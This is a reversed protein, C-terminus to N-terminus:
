LGEIRFGIDKIVKKSFSEELKRSINERRRKIIVWLWTKHIKQRLKVIALLQKYAVLCNYQLDEV